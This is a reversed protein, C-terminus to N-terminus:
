WKDEDGKIMTNVVEIDFGINKGGFPVSLRVMGFKEGTYIHILEGETLEDCVNTYGMKQGIKLDPIDTLKTDRM